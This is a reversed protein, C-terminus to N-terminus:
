PPMKHTPFDIWPECPTGLASLITMTEGDWTTVNAHPDAIPLGTNFVLQQPNTWERFTFDWRQNSLWFNIDGGDVPNMIMDTDFMFVFWGPFTAHYADILHADFEVALTASTGFPFM